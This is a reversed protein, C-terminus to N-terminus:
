DDLLSRVVTGDEDTMDKWDPFMKPLASTRKDILPWVQKFLEANGLLPYFLRGVSTVLVLKRFLSFKCCNELIQRQRDSLRGTQTLHLVVKLSIPLTLNLLLTLIYLCQLLLSFSFRLVFNPLIDNVHRAESPNLTFEQSVTKWEGGQLCIM